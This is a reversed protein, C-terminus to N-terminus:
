RTPDTEDPRDTEDTKSADDSDTAYSDEIRRLADIAQRERDSTSDATGYRVEEFLTTLERADDPSIGAETAAEAFEAPSSREPDDVDLETAMKAWARYVENDLEEDSEIEDAVEGAIRGIAAPNEEEFEYVTASEEDDDGEFLFLSATLLILTLVALGGVLLTPTSVAFGGESGPGLGEVIGRIEDGADSAADQAEPPGPITGPCGATLVIIIIVVPALSLAGFAVGWYRNSLLTVVAAVGLAVLVMVVWMPTEVLPEYCLKENEYATLNWRSGAYEDTGNFEPSEISRNGASADGQDGGVNVPSALTAAALGLALITLLALALPRSYESM